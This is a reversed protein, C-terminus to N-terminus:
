FEAIKVSRTQVANDQPLPPDSTVKEKDLVFITHLKKGHATVEEGVTSQAYYNKPHLADEDEGVKKGVETLIIFSYDNYMFLVLSLLSITSLLIIFPWSLIVSLNGPPDSFVSYGKANNQCNSEMPSFPSIVMTSDDSTQVAEVKYSTIVSTQLMVTYTKHKSVTYLVKANEADEPNNISLADSNPTSANQILLHKSKPDIRYSLPTDGQDIWPDLGPIFGMAKGASQGTQLDVFNANYGDFTDDEGFVIVDYLEFGKYKRLNHLCKIDLGDLGLFRFCGLVVGSSSPLETNFQIEIVDTLRTSLSDYALNDAAGRKGKTGMSWLYSAGQAASSIIPFWVPYDKGKIAVNLLALTATNTANSSYIASVQSGM